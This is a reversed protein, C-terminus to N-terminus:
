RVRRTAFVGYRRSPRESRRLGRLRLLREFAAVADRGRITQTRWLESGHELWTLTYIAPRRM